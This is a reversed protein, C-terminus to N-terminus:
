HMWTEIQLGAGRTTMRITGQTDTRLPTIRRAAARRLVEAHPFGFRNDEGVSHVMWTPDVADLFAPTSSTRSGHHGAKLVDARLLEAPLQRLMEREAGAEADGTLLFDV